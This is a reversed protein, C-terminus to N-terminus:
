RSERHRVVDREVFEELDHRQFDEVKRRSSAGSALEVGHGVTQYRLFEPINIKTVDNSRDRSVTFFERQTSFLPSLNREFIQSQSVYYEVSTVSKLLQEPDLSCIETVFRTRNPTSWYSSNFRFNCMARRVDEYSAFANTSSDLTTLSAVLAITEEPHHDLIKLLRRADGSEVFDWINIDRNETNINKMANTIHNLGEAVGEIFIGYNSGRLEQFM